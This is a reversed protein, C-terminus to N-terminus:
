FSTQWTAFSHYATPGVAELAGRLRSKEELAKRFEWNMAVDCQQLLIEMKAEYGAVEM